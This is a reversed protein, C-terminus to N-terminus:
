MKSWVHGSTVSLFNQFTDILYLFDEARWSIKLNNCYFNLLTQTILEILSLIKYEATILLASNLIISPIRYKATICCHIAAVWIEDIENKKFIMKTATYHFYLLCYHYSPVVSFLLKKVNFKVYLTVYSHAM